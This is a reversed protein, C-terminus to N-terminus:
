CCCPSCGAYPDCCSCPRDVCPAWDLWRCASDCRRTETGCEGCVRSESSGPECEANACFQVTDTAITDPRGDWACQLYATARATGSVAVSWNGPEQAELEAASVIAPDAECSAGDFWVDDIAMAHSLNRAEAQMALAVSPGFRAAPAVHSVSVEFPHLQGTPEPGAEVGWLRQPGAGLDLTVQAIDGGDAQSSLVSFGLRLGDCRARLDLDRSITFSGDGAGVADIGPLAGVPCIMDGELTWGDVDCGAFDSTFVRGPWTVTSSRWADIAVNDLYLDRDLQQQGDRGSHPVFRVGLVPNGAALPELAALDLCVNRWSEEVFPLVVSSWAEAWVGAANLEVALISPELSDEHALDFCLRVSDFDTTDVWREAAFSANTIVLQSEPRDPDPGLRGPAPCNTGNLSGQWGLDALPPCGEFDDLVLSTMGILPTCTICDRAAEDDLITTVACTVPAAGTAGPVAPCDVTLAPREVCGGACPSCILGGCLGDDPAHVPQGGECRDNTCGVGDSPTRTDDATWRTADGAPECVECANAPNVAAPLWCAGDIACSGARAVNSCFGDDCSDATCELGDDCEAPGQCPVAADIGADTGGDPIPAICVGDVCEFAAGCPQGEGCDRAECYGAQCDFEARTGCEAVDACPRQTCTDEICDQDPRCDAEGGCALDDLKGADFGCQCGAALLAAFLVFARAVM